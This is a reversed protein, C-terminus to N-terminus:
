RRTVGRRHQSHPIARIGALIKETDEIEEWSQKRYRGSSGEYPPFPRAIRFDREVERICVRERELM